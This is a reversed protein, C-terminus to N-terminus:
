ECVVIVGLNRCGAAAVTQLERRIEKHPTEMWGEVCIVATGEQLAKVAAASENVKGATTIQVDELQRSLMDRVENLREKSCNGVLLLQAADKLHLRTNAATLEASEQGPRNLDLGLKKAILRDLKGTKKKGEAYVGLVPLGYRLAVDGTSNLRDQLILKLLLCFGIVLLGALAGIVGYKIGQKVVSRLTSASNSPAKLASLNKNTETIADSVTKLGTQFTTQVKGIESDVGAYSNEAITVLRHAGVSPVLLEHQANITEKVAAYIKEARAASDGYITLSLVTNTDDTKTELMKRNTGAPNSSTLHPHEADAIVKDLDLQDLAAQYRKLLAAAISQNQLYTEPTDEVDREVCFSATIFSVNYQDMQLMLANEQYYMQMDQANQLNNLDTELRIKQLEYTELAEEYAKQRAERVSASTYNRYERFAGFAALLLGGILFAALLARWHRLISWFLDKLNLQIYDNEYSKNDQM